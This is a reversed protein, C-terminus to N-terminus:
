TRDRLKMTLSGLSVCGRDDKYLEASTVVNMERWLNTKGDLGKWPLDKTFALLVLTNEKSVRYL